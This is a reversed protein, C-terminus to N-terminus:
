RRPGPRRAGARGAGALDSWCRSPAPTPARCRGRRAPPRLTSRTPRWRRGPELGARGALRARGDRRAPLGPRVARREPQQGLDGRRPPVGGRGHAAAVTARRWRRRPHGATARRPRARDGRHGRLADRGRPGLDDFVPSYSFTHYTEEPFGSRELFLQLAEDWTARAPRCCRRSAPGLRRGSRGGSTTPAPARAGLRAEGRGDPLYADNCFFTLEAGLVDVDRLALHPPHPGDRPARRALETARRTSDRELRPRADAHGDRRRRHLADRPSRRADILGRVRGDTIDTEGRSRAWHGPSSPRPGHPRSRPGLAGRPHTESPSRARDRKSLHRWDSAPHSPCDDTGRQHPHGLRPRPEHRQHHAPGGGPTPPRTSPRNRALRRGPLRARRIPAAHEGIGGTFVLADLGGLAAALSGLERGIRYVFLDVALRARPRTAPAAAGAHRQLRRFRRAAGVAPLHLKEIARADMKLEDILYLMVGPDLAGCRTGMPLGDVATFGMTSAVSKGATCRACAPATAWTRSSWGARPPGPTWAAAARQRHIRLLPRPLRLAPRGGDTIAAPLAFMQALTRSRATSPPTSAPWRRCIAAHAGRVLRIPALNHPQHLPALPSWSRWSGSWRPPSSRTPESFTSAATCSATASPSWGTTAAAARRLFDILHTSPARTGSPARGGAVAARAVPRRRRGEGHLAARTCLGEVQGRFWPQLAAGDGLFVSFKISSSGANLVLIADAM